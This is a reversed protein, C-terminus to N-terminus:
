MFLGCYIISLAQRWCVNRRWNHIACLRCSTYRCFRCLTYYCSYYGWETKAEQLAQAMETENGTISIAIVVDGETLAGATMRQAHYDTAADAHKRAMWFRYKMDVATVGSLGTGFIHVSRARFLANM